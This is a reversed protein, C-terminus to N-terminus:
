AREAAVEWYISRFGAEALKVNGDAARFTICKLVGGPGLAESTVVKRRQVFGNIITIIMM